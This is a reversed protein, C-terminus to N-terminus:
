RCGRDRRSRGSLAHPTGTEGQSLYGPEVNADQADFTKRKRPMCPGLFPLVQPVLLLRLFSIGFAIRKGRTGGLHQCKSRAEKQRPRFQDQLSFLKKEYLLQCNRKLKIVWSRSARERKQFSFIRLRKRVFHIRPAATVERM